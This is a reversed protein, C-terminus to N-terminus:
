LNGIVEMKQHYKKEKYQCEFIMISHKINVGLVIWDEYAYIKIKTM